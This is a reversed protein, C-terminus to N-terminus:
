FIDPLLVYNLGIIYILMHNFLIKFFVEMANKEAM